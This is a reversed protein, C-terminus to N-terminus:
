RTDLRQFSKGIAALLVEWRHTSMSSFIGTHRLFDRFENEGFGCSRLRPKTLKRSCPVFEVHVNINKIRQQLGTYKGTMTAAHVYAQGRCNMFNFREATKIKTEIFDILFGSSSSGSECDVYITIDPNNSRQLFRSVTSVLTIIEFRVNIGLIEIFENQIEPSM